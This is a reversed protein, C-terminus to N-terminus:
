EFEPGVGWGLKREGCCPAHDVNASTLLLFDPEGEDWVGDEFWWVVKVSIGGGWTVLVVVCVMVVEPKCVIEGRQISGDGCEDGGMCMDERGHAKIVDVKGIMIWFVEGLRSDTELSVSRRHTYLAKGLESTELGLEPGGPRTPYLSCRLGPLGITEEVVIRRDGEGDSITLVLQDVGGGVLHQMGGDALTPLPIMVKSPLAHSAPLHPGCSSITLLLYTLTSPHPHLPSPAIKFTSIEIHIPTPHLFATVASCTADSQCRADVWFQAAAVTIDVRAMLEDYTNCANPPSM